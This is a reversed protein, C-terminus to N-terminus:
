KACWSIGCSNTPKGIYTAVGEPINHLGIALATLIGTRNLQQKTLSSYLNSGNQPATGSEASDVITSISTETSPTVTNSKQLRNLHSVELEEHAVPSIKEVIFDM